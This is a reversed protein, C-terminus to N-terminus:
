LIALRSQYYQVFYRAGLIMLLACEVGVGFKRLVKPYPVLSFSGADYGTGKKLRSYYVGKPELSM